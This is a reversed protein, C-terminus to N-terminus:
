SCYNIKRNKAQINSWKQRPVKSIKGVQSDRKNRSIRYNKNRILRNSIKKKRM